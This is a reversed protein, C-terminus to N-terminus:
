CRGVAAWAAELEAETAGDGININAFGKAFEDAWDRHVGQQQQQQMFENSWNSAAAAASSGAGFEAAWNDAKSSSAAFDAAWAEGAPREVVQQVDAPVAACCM